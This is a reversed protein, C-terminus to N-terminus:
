QHDRRDLYAPALRQCHRRDANNQRRRCPWRYRHALPRETKTMHPFDKTSANRPEDRRHRVPFRHQASRGAHRTATEAAISECLPTLAALVAQGETQGLPVARVAASVLNSVFAQLYIAATLDCRHRCASRRGRRRRSLYARAADAGWIAAHDQLLCRGAAATEMLRERQPRLPAHPRTSKRWRPRMPLLMHRACCSATTAGAAM